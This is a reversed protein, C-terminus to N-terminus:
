RLYDEEMEQIRHMIQESIEVSGRLGEHETRPELWSTACYFNEGHVPFNSYQDQHDGRLYVCLVRAGPLGKILRGTGLAPNTNCVRGTRSRGGEPFMLVAHRHTLLHRLKKLVLSIKTRDGGRIVPICKALYAGVRPLLKHAFNKREPVNWPVKKFHALYWWSPALAWAILPSDVMTLHNACVMVPGPADRIESRFQRRIRRHDVISWRYKVRVVFSILTLTLPACCWAILNQAVLAFRDRLRLGSTSM